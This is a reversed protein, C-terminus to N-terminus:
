PMERAATAIMDRALEGNIFDTNIAIDYHDCLLSDTHYLRKFYDSRQRDSDALTKRVSALALGQAEAFRHSRREPSGYILVKLVGPKDKLILQGARNVIVAEGQNGLERVVHEVFQRYDDSNLLNMSLPIETAPPMDSTVMGALRSMMREFFGPARESTAIALLEPSVGAEQAARAIIEWDYYRFRLREAVARSIASGGSGMQNSFTVITASM